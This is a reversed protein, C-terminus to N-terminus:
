GCGIICPAIRVRITKIRITASKSSGIPNSACFPRAEEDRDDVVRDDDVVLDDPEFVEELLVDAEFFDVADTGFFDVTM